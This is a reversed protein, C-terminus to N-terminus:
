LNHCFSRVRSIFASPAALLTLCINRISSTSWWSSRRPILLLLLLPVLDLIIDVMLISEHLLLLLSLPYILTAIELLSEKHPSNPFSPPAAPSLCSCFWQHHRGGPPGWSWWSSLSCWSYPSFPALPPYYCSCNRSFMKVQLFFSSSSFFLLSTSHFYRSCPYETFCSDWWMVMRKHLAMKLSNLNWSYKDEM